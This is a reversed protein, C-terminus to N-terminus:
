DSFITFQLFGRPIFSRVQDNLFQGADHLIIARVCHGEEAGGFAGIFFVIENLLEAASHDTRVVNVVTRAKSM